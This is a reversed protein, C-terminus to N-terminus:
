NLKQTLTKNKTCEKDKEHIGGSKKSSRYKLISRM